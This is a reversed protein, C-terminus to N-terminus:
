VFPLNPSHVGVSGFINAVKIKDKYLMHMLSKQVDTPQRTHLLSACTSTSSFFDQVSNAANLSSSWYDDSIKWWWLCGAWHIHWGKNCPEALMYSASREQQKILFFTALRSFPVQRHRDLGKKLIDNCLYNDHSMLEKQIYHITAHYM